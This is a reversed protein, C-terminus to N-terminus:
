CEPARDSARRFGLRESRGHAVGPAVRAVIVVREAPRDRLEGLGAKAFTVGTEDPRCRGLANATPRTISFDDSRLGDVGRRDRSRSSVLTERLPKKLEQYLGLHWIPESLSWRAVPTDSSTLENIASRSPEVRTSARSSSQVATPRDLGNGVAFFGHVPQELRRGPRRGRDRFVQATLTLM